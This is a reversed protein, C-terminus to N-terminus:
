ILYLHDLRSKVQDALTKRDLKGNELFPIEKMNLAWRPRWLKAFAKLAATAEDLQEPNHLVLVPVRGYMHDVKYSIFAPIEMRRLAREMLEPQIKVGGSNIVFDRRGLYRFNRENRMEVIDNTELAELDLHPAHIILTEEDSESFTTSGVATYYTEGLRRLAVHSATETMGYGIFVRPLLGPNDYKPDLEAGGLLINAIRKLGEPQEEVLRIYQAPTMPVFKYAHDIPILGKPEVLTMKLNGLYARVIMMIGGIYQAPLALLVRDGPELEFFDITALASRMLRKRSHVITKPAGTSGSTQVELEQVGSRLWAVVKQIHQFWPADVEIGLLGEPSYANGQFIFIPEQM